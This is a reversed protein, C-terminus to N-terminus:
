GQREEVLLSCCTVAGEAKALESVDVVETRIGRAELRGRTRPFGAPQIVTGRVLLVNAAHPESPDVHVQDLAPDFGAPPVWAPQVLLVGPAAVTVASKLHLCGEVPVVVVGYGFPAVADRLQAAGEANTRATRGVYLTRGALLVDGGDLTAPERLPVLARLRGLAEAVAATEARRSAAGPRTVIAIEDLVIAMDEVFVSDPREPDAPLRVVTCGARRLCEEYADHQACARAVDIPARALHTLECRAIGPSVARTLAVTM